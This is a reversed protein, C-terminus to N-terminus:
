VQHVPSNKRSSSVAVHTLLYKFSCLHSFDVEVLSSTVFAVLLGPVSELKCTTQDDSCRKETFNPKGTEVGLLQTSRKVYTGLGEFFIKRNETRGFM